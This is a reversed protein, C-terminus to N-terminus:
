DAGRALWDLLHESGGHYSHKHDYFGRDIMGIYPGGQGDPVPVEPTFAAYVDGFNTLVEAASLARNHYFISAIELQSNETMAGPATGFFVQGTNGGDGASYPNNANSVGNKYFRGKSGTGSEKTIVLHEYAGSASSDQFSNWGGVFYQYGFPSTNAALGFDMANGTRSHYRPKTGGGAGAGHRRVLMTLTWPDTTAFNLAALSGSTALRSVAEGQASLKLFRATGGDTGWSGDSVNTGLLHRSSGSYDSVTIGTSDFFLWAGVLGNAFAHSAQLTPVTPKAPFAM